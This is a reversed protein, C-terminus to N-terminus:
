ALSLSQPKLECIDQCIDGNSSPILDTGDFETISGDGASVTRSRPWQVSCPDDIPGHAQGPLLQSTLIAILPRPRQVFLFTREQGLQLGDIVDPYGIPPIRLGPHTPRIRARRLRLRAAHSALGRPPRRQSECCPCFPCAM